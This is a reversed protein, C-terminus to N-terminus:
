AGIARRAALIQTPMSAEVVALGPDMFSYEYTRRRVTETHLNGHEDHSRITYDQEANDLVELEASSVAIPVGRPLERSVGNIGIHVPHNAAPNDAPILVIMVKDDHLTRIRDYIVRRAAQRAQAAEFGVADEVPNGTGRAALQEVLQMTQELKRELEANKAQQEALAAAIARDEARLKDLQEDTPEDNKLYVDGVAEAAKEAEAAIKQMVEPDVQPNKAM